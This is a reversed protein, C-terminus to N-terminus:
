KMEKLWQTIEETHQTVHETYPAAFTKIAHEIKADESISRLGDSLPSEDGSEQLARLAIKGHGTGSKAGVIRRNALSLLACILASHELPTM